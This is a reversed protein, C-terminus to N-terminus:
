SFASAKCVPCQNKQVLWQKVCVAHYSHGCELRGLDDGEEYEEQFYNLFIYMLPVHM